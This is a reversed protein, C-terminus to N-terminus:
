LFFVCFGQVVSQACSTSNEAWPIHIISRRLAACSKLKTHFVLLKEGQDEALTEEKLIIFYYDRAM